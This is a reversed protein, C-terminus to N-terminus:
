HSSILELASRADPVLYHRASSHPIKGKFVYPTGRKATLFPCPEIRSERPLHPIRVVRAFM